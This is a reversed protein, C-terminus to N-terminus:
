GGRSFEVQGTFAPAALGTGGIHLSVFELVDDEAVVLDAPTASLNLAVEDDAAGNQGATFAKSAVLVNGAGTTGRNRLEITRSNTDAGTIAASLIVSAASVTGAFPANVYSGSADAAAAAAAVDAKQTQKFPQM